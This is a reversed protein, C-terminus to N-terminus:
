HFDFDLFGLVWFIPGILGIEIFVLGDWSAFIAFGALVGLLIANELVFVGLEVNVLEEVPFSLARLVYLPPDPLHLVLLKM